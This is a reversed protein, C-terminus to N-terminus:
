NKNSVVVEKKWKNKKELNAGTIKKFFGGGKM